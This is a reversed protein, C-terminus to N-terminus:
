AANGESSLVYDHAVPSVERFTPLATFAFYFFKYTQITVHYGWQTMLNAVYNASALYGPEGSNRSPHGDPGPNADAIAQFAKMYNWLDDTRICPLLRASTDNVRSACQASTLAAASNPIGTTIGLVLLAVAIPTLSRRLRRHRMHDEVTSPPPEAGQM